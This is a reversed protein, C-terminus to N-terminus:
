ESMVSIFRWIAEGWVVLLLLLAVFVLASGIDKARGILPHHALTIADALAELASNVLEAFLVLLLSAFLLLWHNRSDCLLFSLPLLIMVLLLEQRFASEYHWAAQFGKCSCMTAKILRRLGRGNPKNLPTTM